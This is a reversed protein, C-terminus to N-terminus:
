SPTREHVSPRECPLHQRLVHAMRQWALGRVGVLWPSDQPLGTIEMRIDPEDM